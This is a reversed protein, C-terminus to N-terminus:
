FTEAEYVGDFGRTTTTHQKLNLKAVGTISLMVLLNRIDDTSGSILTISDRSKTVICPIQIPLRMYNVKQYLSHICLVSAFTDETLAEL